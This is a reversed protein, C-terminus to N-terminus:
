RAAKVAGNLVRKDNKVTGLSVGERDAIQMLTLGEGIGALVRERRAALGDAGAPKVRSVTAKVTAAKVPSIVGDVTQRKGDVGARSVRYRLQTLFSEFALLLIVSPIAWMVRPLM